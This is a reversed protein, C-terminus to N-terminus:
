NAEQSWEIFTVRVTRALFRPPAFSLPKDNRIITGGPDDLVVRLRRPPKGSGLWRYTSLTTWLDTPQLGDPLWVREGPIFAKRGLFLFWKPNQLATQLRELVSVDGELGVLFKADSLYYRDSIVLSDNVTGSVTYIGGMGATQFDKRITGAQDVRVGMKLTNLDDLANHRNRGLAACLLGIVASKSPEPETDRHSFNSKTGWAQMPASLRLLLTAM